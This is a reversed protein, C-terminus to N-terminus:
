RWPLMPADPNISWLLLGLGQGWRKSAGGSAATIGSYPATPVRYPESGSRSTTSVIGREIVTCAHMLQARVLFWESSPSSRFRGRAMLTWVDPELAGLARPNCSEKDEFSVM